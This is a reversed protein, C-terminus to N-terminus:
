IPLRTLRQALWAGLLPLVIGGAWMWAPHPIELMTAVGAVILLFAVIWGPLARQAVRDGVWGGALAAVFWAVLVVAKAAVPMAEMLRAKDAPDTLGTETPLPFISHGLAEILWVCLFAVVLGAAAGLFLKM